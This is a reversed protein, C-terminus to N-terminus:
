DARGCCTLSSYRASGPAENGIHRGPIGRTAGCAWADCGRKSRGCALRLGVVDNRAYRLLGHRRAFFSHIAESPECHRSFVMVSMDTGMFDSDISMCACEGPTTSRDRTM